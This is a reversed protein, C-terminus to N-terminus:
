ALPIIFFALIETGNFYRLLKQPNNSIGNILQLTSNFSVYAFCQSKNTSPAALTSLPSRALESLIIKVLFSVFFLIQFTLINSHFCFLFQFYFYLLHTYINDFITPTPGVFVSSFLNFNFQLLM